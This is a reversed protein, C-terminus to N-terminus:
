AAAESYYFLWENHTVLYDAEAISDVTVFPLYSRLDYLTIM